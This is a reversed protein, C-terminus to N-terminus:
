DGCCKLSSIPEGQIGFSKGKWGNSWQVSYAIAGDPHNCVHYSDVTKVDEPQMWATETGQRVKFSVWAIRPIVLTPATGNPVETFPYSGYGLKQSRVVVGVIPLEGEEVEVVDDSEDLDEEPFNTGNGQPNFRKPNVLSPDVPNKYSVGYQPFINIDGKLLLDSNEFEISVNGNPNINVDGLVFTTNNIVSPNGNEDIYEIDTTIEPPDERKIRPLPDGCTDSGSTPVAILENVVLAPDPFALSSTIENNLLIGAENGFRIRLRTSNFTAQETTLEMVTIKGQLTGTVFQAQNERRIGTFDTYSVNVFAQYVLNPCQGGSFPPAPLVPEWGLSKDCVGRGLLRQLLGLQDGESETIADGVTKGFISKAIWEFLEDGEELFVCLGQRIKETIEANFLGAM